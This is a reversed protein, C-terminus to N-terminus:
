ITKIKIESYEKFILDYHSIVVYLEILSTTTDSSLIDSVQTGIDSVQTGIDSM